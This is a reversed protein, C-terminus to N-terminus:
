SARAGQAELEVGPRGRDGRGVAGVRGVRLRQDHGGSREQPEAEGAAVSDTPEMLKPPLKTMSRLTRVAKWGTAVTVTSASSVARAVPSRLWSPRASRSMPVM